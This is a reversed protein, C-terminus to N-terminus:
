RAELPRAAWHLGGDPGKQTVFRFELERQWPMIWPQFQVVIRIDASRITVDDRLQQPTMWDFVPDLTASFKEKPVLKHNSWSRDSFRGGNPGTCGPAGSTFRSNDGRITLVRPTRPNFPRSVNMDVRCIGVLFIVHNLPIIDTNVVSFQASFAKAADLPVSIDVSLRSLLELAAVGIFVASIRPVPSRKDKSAPQSAAQTQWTKGSKSKKIEM